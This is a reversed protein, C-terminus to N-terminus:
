GQDDNLEHCTPHARAAYNSKEKVAKAEYPLLRMAKTEKTETSYSFPLEPQLHSYTEGADESKLHDFHKHRSLFFYNGNQKPFL